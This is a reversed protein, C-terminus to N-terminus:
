GVRADFMELGDLDLDIATQSPSVIDGDFIIKLQHRSVGFANSVKQYLEEM